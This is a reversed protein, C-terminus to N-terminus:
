TRVKTGRKSIRAGEVKYGKQPDADTELVVEMVPASEGNVRNTVDIAIGYDVKMQTSM